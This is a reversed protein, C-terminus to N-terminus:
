AVETRFSRLYSGQYQLQEKMRLRFAEFVQLHTKKLIKFFIFAVFRHTQLEIDEDVIVNGKNNRRLRFDICLYLGTKVQSTYRIHKGEAPESVRVSYCPRYKLFPLVNVEEEVEYDEYNSCIIASCSVKKMYPHVDAFNEFHLLNTYVTEPDGELIHRLKTRYSSVVYKSIAATLFSLKQM